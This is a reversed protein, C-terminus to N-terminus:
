SAVGRNVRCAVLGQKARWTQYEAGAKELDARMQPTDMGTVHDVAAHQAAIACGQEALTDELDRVRKEAAVARDYAGRGQRHAISRADAAAKEAGRGAARLAADRQVELDAIRRSKRGWM